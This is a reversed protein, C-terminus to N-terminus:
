YFLVDFEPDNKIITKFTGNSEEIIECVLGLPTQRKLIYKNINNLKTNTIVYECSELKNNYLFKQIETILFKFIYYQHSLNTQKYSIKKDVMLGFKILYKNNDKKFFRLEYTKQEHTLEIKTVM